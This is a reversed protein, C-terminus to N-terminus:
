RLEFPLIEIQPYGINVQNPGSADQAITIYLDFSGGTTPNTLILEDTRVMFTGSQYFVGGDYMTTFGPLDVEFTGRGTSANGQITFAARPNLVFGAGM